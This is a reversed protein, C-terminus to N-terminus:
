MGALIGVLAAAKPVGLGTSLDYGVKAQTASPGGSVVDNFAQSYLLPNSAVAYLAAQFDIPTKFQEARVANTIAALAAWQPAGISTGYGGYWGCNAAGKATVCAKDPIQASPTLYVSLASAADADFAVDPVARRPLGLSTQYTPTAYFQTVGGGSGGWGTDVAGLNNTGGVALVRNSVSPWIPRAGIDGSAAVYTVGTKSFAITDWGGATYNIQGNPMIPNAPGYLYTATASAATCTPDYQVLVGQKNKVGQCTSAFGSEAGGWSMSVVNGIKAGYQVGFSLASVFPSPVQVLVITAMPAIAHAWEIDMSSEAMWNMDDGFTQKTPRGTSTLNIVQFSCGSGATPKPSNANYYGSVPDVTYNTTVVNCQPLGHQASFKALDGAANPNNYASVIVIVQGSGQQAPTTLTGFGYRARVQAPNQGLTALGGATKVSALVGATTTAAMPQMEPEAGLATATESDSQTAVADKALQDPGTNEGGGCAALLCATAIISLSQLKKMIEKRNIEPHL